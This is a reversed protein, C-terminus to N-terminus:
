AGSSAPVRVTPWDQLPERSRAPEEVAGIAPLKFIQKELFENLFVRNPDWRERVQLFEDMKPYRDRIPDTEFYLKAWHPRASPIDLWRRELERYFDVWNPTHEATTVEVYCTEQEHDPALWGNSGATFRGHMMLNVPFLSASAYERLLSIGASWARAADHNPFSYSMDWCKPFVRAFHFANSATAVTVGPKAYSRNTFDFVRPFINPVYRTAWPYISDIISEQFAATQKAVFDAWPPRPDPPSDTRNMLYVWMTDQLPTYFIELFDCSRLQALDEFGELVEDVPIERIQTHVNFQDVLQLKVSQVVGLTGLNVQAAAYEDRGEPTPRKPDPRRVVRPEGTHDVITMELIDDSFNGALFSTGHSGTAVAGGVTPGPFLPPTVLTLGYKATLANLAQIDMGAGVEITRADVDLSHLRDMHQMNIITGGEVPVLPAWSYSAGDPRIRHGKEVASRICTSLEEEHRPARVDARVRHNGAFNHWEQM